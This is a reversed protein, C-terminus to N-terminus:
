TKSGGLRCNPLDPFGHRLFTIEEVQENTHIHPAGLQLSTREFTPKVKSPQFYNKADLREVLIGVAARPSPWRIWCIGM